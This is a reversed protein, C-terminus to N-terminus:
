SETSIEGAETLAQRWTPNLILVDWIERFDVNARNAWDIGEADERKLRTKYVISNPSTGQRGIVQMRASMHGEAVDRGSTFLDAYADAMWVNITRFEEAITEFEDGNFEVLVNFGTTQRNDRVQVNIFRPEGDNTEGAFRTQMLQVLVENAQGSPGVPTGVADGGDSGCAALNLVLLPFVFIAILLGPRLYSM